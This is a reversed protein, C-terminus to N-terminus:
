DENGEATRRPHRGALDEAQSEAFLGFLVDGGPLM